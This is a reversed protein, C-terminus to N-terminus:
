TLEVPLRVRTKGRSLFPSNWTEVHTSAQSEQQFAMPFGLDMDVRSLIGSTRAEVRSSARPGQVSQLPIGLPGECSAHLSSKGSAVRSSGSTGTTVRSSGWSKQRLKLFVLLNEGGSSILGKEASADRPFDCRGERVELPDKVGLTFSLFNVSMSTNLQSSYRPDRWM